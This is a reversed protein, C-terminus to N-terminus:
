PLPSYDFPIGPGSVSGSIPGNAASNSRTADLRMFEVDMYTLGGSAASSLQHFPTQVNLTYDLPLSVLAQGQLMPSHRFLCVRM